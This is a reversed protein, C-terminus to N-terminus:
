MCASMSLKKYGRKELMQRHEEAALVQLFEPLNGIITISSFILSIPNKLEKLQILHIVKFNEFVVHECFGKLM